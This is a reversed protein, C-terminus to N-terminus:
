IQKTHTRLARRSAASAPPVPLHPASLHEGQALGDIPRLPLASSWAWLPLLGASGSVARLWLQRGDSLTFTPVAV